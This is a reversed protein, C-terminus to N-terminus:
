LDDHGLHDTLALNSVQPELDEAFLRNRMNHWDASRWEKGERDVFVADTEPGMLYVITLKNQGKEAPHPIVRHLSSRLLNKILFEVSDGINCVTHGPKPPIFM